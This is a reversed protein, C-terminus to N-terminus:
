NAHEFKLMEHTILLFTFLFKRTFYTIKWLTLHQAKPFFLFSQYLFEEPMTSCQAVCPLPRTDHSAWTKLSHILSGHLTVTFFRLETVVFELAEPSSARTGVYNQAM